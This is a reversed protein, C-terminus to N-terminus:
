VSAYQVNASIEGLLLPILGVGIDVEYVSIWFYFLFINDFNDVTELIAALSVDRRADLLEM